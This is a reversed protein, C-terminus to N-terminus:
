WLGASPIWKQRLALFFGEGGLFVAVAPLKAVSPSLGGERYAGLGQYGLGIADGPLLAYRKGLNYPLGDVGIDLM